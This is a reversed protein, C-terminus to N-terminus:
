PSRLRIASLGTIDGIPGDRRYLRLDSITHPQFLERYILNDFAIKLTQFAIAGCPAEQDQQEPSVRLHAM